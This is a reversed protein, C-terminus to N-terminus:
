ISKYLSVKTAIQIEYSVNLTRCSNETPVVKPIEFNKVYGIRCGVAEPNRYFESKIVSTKKKMKGGLSSSYYFIRKVFSIEIFEVGSRTLNIVNTSIKM